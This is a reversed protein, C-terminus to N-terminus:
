AEVDRREVREEISQLLTPPDFSAPDLLGALATASVIAERGFAAPHQRCLSPVPALEDFGNGAYRLHSTRSGDVWDSCPSQLASIADRRALRRRAGSCSASRASSSAWCTSSRNRSSRRRPTLAASARRVTSSSNSPSPLRADFNRSTTRRPPDVGGSPAPPRPPSAPWSRCSM